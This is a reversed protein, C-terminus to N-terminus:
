SKYIRDSISIIPMRLLLVVEEKSKAIQTTKLHVKIVRSMGVSITPVRSMKWGVKWKQTVCSVSNGKLM